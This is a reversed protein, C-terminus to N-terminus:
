SKKLCNFWHSCCVNPKTFATGLSVMLMKLLMFSLSGCPWGGRPLLISFAFVREGLLQGWHSANHGALQLQSLGSSSHSDNEDLSSSMPQMGSRSISILRFSLWGTCIVYVDIGRGKYGSTFCYMSSRRFWFKMVSDLDGYEEGTTQTRFFSPDSLSHM